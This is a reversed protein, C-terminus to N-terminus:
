FARKRISLCCKYLRSRLFYVGLYKLESVWSISIGSSACINSCPVHVNVRSGIRLCCSKKFNIAM